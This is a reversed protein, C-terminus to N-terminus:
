SRIYKAMFMGTQSRRLSPPLLCNPTDTWRPSVVEERGAALSTQRPAGGRLQGGRGVHFRFFASAEGTEPPLMLIARVEVSALEASRTIHRGNAGQELMQLLLSLPYRNM